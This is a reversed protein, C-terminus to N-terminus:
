KQGLVVAHFAHSDFAISGMRTILKACVHIHGITGAATTKEAKQEIEIVRIRACM